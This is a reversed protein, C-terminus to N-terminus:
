IVYMYYLMVAVIDNDKYRPDMLGQIEGMIQKEHISKALVINLITNM